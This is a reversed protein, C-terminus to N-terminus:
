RSLRKPGSVCPNGRIFFRWPKHVYEEAYDIGIRVSRGAHEGRRLKGPVLFLRTGCLDVGYQEKTIGMALCLKGPGRCLAHEPADPQGLRLRMVDVGAVPELARVLVAQPKDAPGSTVNFCWYVGYVFFVYSHGKEGFMAENRATRRGGFSHAGKDVPGLYAETEVIRGATVGEPSQHVLTAGLLGRAVSLTPRSFFECHFRASLDLETM